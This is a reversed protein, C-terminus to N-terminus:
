VSFKEIDFQSVVILWLQTNFVAINWIGTGRLDYGAVLGLLSNISRADIFWVIHDVQNISGTTYTFYPTQSVEDFQIDVGENRALAVSSDYTLVRVSSFGPIFPLEWDYGITALGINLKDQPIYGLVYNTYTELQYISSVPSPPNLNRPLEFNMFTVNDALNGLNAYDVRLFDLEDGVVTINPNITAFALFGEERLRNAIRSAASEIFPLNAENVHEFSLNLGYFGKERLIRIVNEILRNQNEEILLIEYATRINAEGQLTLTTLFMLPIVNYEKATQIIEMDDYYSVIEGTDTATYNVVSIYTLYPLTKRLTAQNIYSLANGHTAITGIKDYSIVIRDGINLYDQEILYPNNQLLQMLTVNHSNAIDILTDGEVVTYTLAPYVIVICQGVVLNDPESLANDQILIPESTGYYEAIMQLTDGPQVVHIIM